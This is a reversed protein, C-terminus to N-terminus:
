PVDRMRVGMYGSHGDLLTSAHGDCFLANYKM